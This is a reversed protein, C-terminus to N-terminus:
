YIQIRHEKWGSPVRLIPLRELPPTKWFVSAGILPYTKNNEQYQVVGSLPRAFLGNGMFAYLLIYKKM